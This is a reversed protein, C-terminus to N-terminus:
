SNSEQAEDPSAAPNSRGDKVQLIEIGIEGVRYVFHFPTGIITFKRANGDELPTGLYPNTMLARTASLYRANARKRGEPFVDEYYHRYWRLDIEASALFKIKM